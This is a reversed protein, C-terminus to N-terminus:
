TLQNTMQFMKWWIIFQCRQHLPVIEITIQPKQHTSILLNYWSPGNKDLAPSPTTSDSCDNMRDLEWTLESEELQWLMFIQHDESQVSSPQPDTPCEHISQTGSVPEPSLAVQNHSGNSIEPDPALSIMTTKKQSTFLHIPLISIQELAPPSVTRKFRKTPPAGRGYRRTWALPLTGIASTGPWEQSSAGIPEKWYQGEHDLLNETNWSDPLSAPVSCNCASSCDGVVKEVSCAFGSSSSDAQDVYEDGKTQKENYRIIAPKWKPPPYGGCAVM